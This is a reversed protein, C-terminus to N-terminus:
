VEAFAEVEEKGQVAKGAILMLKNQLDKLENLRYTKAETGEAPPVSLQIVSELSTGGCENGEETEPCGLRYIGRANIAKAQMLSSM